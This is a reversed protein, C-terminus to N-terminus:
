FEVAFISVMPTVNYLCCWGLTSPPMHRALMFSLLCPLGAGRAALIKQAHAM